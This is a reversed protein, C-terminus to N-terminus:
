RARTGLTFRAIRNRSYPSQDFLKGNYEVAVAPSNGLVVQLPPMVDDLVRTSGGPVLEHMVEKGTADTVIVWCEASFRLVVVAPQIGALTQPGPQPQPLSETTADGSVAAPVDAPSSTDAGGTGPANANLAGAQVTEGDSAAAPQQAEVADLRKAAPLGQMRWFYGIVGAAALAALIWVLRRLAQANVTQPSRSQAPGEFPAPADEDAGAYCEVIADAPLQLLVAYSRLYGRVFVPPAIAHNDQELAQIYKVDLRLRDAVQDVSLGLSERRARLRAGPGVM